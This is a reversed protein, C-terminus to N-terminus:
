NIQILLKIIFESGEGEKSEVELSGGHGKTVIDYALSLGLGTGQGTPKTTFFPQFIKSKIEETMGTGNDIVKIILQNEAQETKVVVLPKEVTKVAWFANNILNLLVRGIDQPIVEIKPLNPDFDTKFDSNFDKNKARLGHYALRLYEDALANINTLEKEGTSAKSHELMGKVISSARKGHLTIKELNQKLDNSIVKAEYIDGKDLEQNMEGVLETSVESFNNVFNLPNQIEHAIGATLEGLSALKESQILQNQTAKLETLTAEVRKKADELKTFDEYRAYAVAFADALTKALGIQDASLPEASGIYLMGQTFPVFQLSLSEPPEEGGQYTKKEKVYGQETMSHVWVAFQEKDWFDTYVERKRWHEVTKQTTAAGEFPLHLAALSNGDPTSLYAHVTESAEDMIFVGCRFFPVGLMTLERWVLPTIRKLDDTTRMSAIEGRVRDLSATRASEVARAEAKQLDLFRTYTQEFVKAFRQYVLFNEETFPVVNTFELLGYKINTYSFFVNESSRWGDKVEDPLNKHDTETLMYETYEDKKKNLLEITFQPIGQKWLKWVKGITKNTLPVTFFQPSHSMNLEAYWYRMIQAEEDCLVIACGWDTFGLNQIQAYMLAVVDALEDSKHMAISKARVRELALQIEAERAQAEAKQLDLFRTYTQEFVKAFRELIVFQEESIPETDVSELLGHKMIASSFVDQYGSNLILQKVEEPLHKFDTETLILKDFKKKEQGELTLSLRPLQDEWAEWTKQFFPHITRPINFCEAFTNQATSTTWFQLIDKREDPLILEIGSSAFGFPKIEEFLLAVVDSLEESRHMAMSRARVREMALEIQAERAQAEAKQLDLFRVYASGFVNSFRRLLAHTEANPKTMSTMVLSGGAFDAVSWYATIDKPKLGKTSNVVVKYAEPAHQKLMKCFDEFKKGENILVYDKKNSRYCAMMEEVIAIGKKPFRSQTQVIEQESNPSRSAAWSEFYDPSEDYLHIACTELEKQDLKGLQRRLELAVDALEDSRQMAMTRARVREMALQIQSESAQAEAKQLDLFRTYAQEFAKAFRKLINKEEATAKVFQVLGFRGYKHNVETSELNEFNYVHKKIVRNFYDTGTMEEMVHFFQQMADKGHLSLYSFEKGEKWDKITTNEWPATPPSYFFPEELIGEIPSMWVDQYGKELYLISSFLQFFEIELVKLQNYLVTVVKALEESKHMALSRSRVRELAAEIQAERAQAEAKKLDLLRRYALDFVSASRMLLDKAEYSPEQMSALLLTGGSFDACHYFEKKPINRAEPVLPQMVKYFEKIRNGSAVITYQKSPGQYQKIMEKMVACSEKGFLVVGTVMKADPDGAPHLFAFWSEIHKPHTEYLEVVMGNLETQGLLGMQERLVLAVEKLEESTHMALARARVRELAAEIQAERAQAEAKQLDLFRTYTQQFVKAFRGVITLTEESLRFSSVLEIQGYKMNVLTFHAAETERMINQFGKPLLRLETEKLLYKVYDDYDDGSASQRLYPEQTKWSEWHQSIHPNSKGLIKYSRPLTMSDFGAMWCEIMEDEEHFININCGFDVPEMQGIQQYLVGVVQALEDSQHMAMTAARVRELALQIEAERAQTEAKQLDLFRTYTQEFVKTFRALLHEHGDSLVNTSVIIIWGHSFNFTYFVVEEPFNLTVHKFSENFHKFIFEGHERNAKGKVVDKFFVEKQKWSKYRRIGVPDGNIPYMFFDRIINGEPSVIWGNVVGALQDIFEFGCTFPQVGFSRLEKFLLSSADAMEESKHMALSTARVRELAAEIQAERAQAEAKQLDLFRTYTQNFVKAFRTLIISSGESLEKDAVLELYGMSFYACHFFTPDPMDEIVKAELETRSAIPFVFDCHKKLASGEVKVTFFTEKRSWLDYLKQLIEDGLLPFVAMELYDADTRAGGYLIQQNKSEDFIVISADSFEQVDLNRLEKYLVTAVDVLEESKHMALSRSRVRELAAEIHAERAQAEAKQLDLFRTYTQEFVKCFRQLLSYLEDQPKTWSSYGMFGFQHRCQLLHYDSAGEPVYEIEFLLQEKFVKQAVEKELAFQRYPEKNKFADIDAQFTYHDTGNVTNNSKLSSQGNNNWIQLTNEEVNVFSIWSAVTETRLIKFQNTLENVVQELEDSKYMAMTRSRVRELAAEIQAERAQAEAKQLDLFRIYTQEFAKAFRVLISKQAKDLPETAIILLYGHSFNGFHFYTTEPMDLIGRREEETREADPYAVELHKKLQQADLKQSFFPEKRKWAEYRELLVQDGILPLTFNVLLNSDTQSGWLEQRKKEENILAFGCQVSQTIGLNKMADYMVTAVSILDESKHMAMSASRVRELAAEIELEKNKSNLVLNAKQKQRNNRVLIFSLFMLSALAGAISFLWIRQTKNEQEKLHSESELLEIDRQRKKLVGQIELESRNAANNLREEKEKAERYIKLYTFAKSKNGTQEYLQSLLRATLILRPLLNIETAWDFSTQAYKFANRLNGVSKYSEALDYAAWCAGHRDNYKLYATISEKFVSQAEESKGQAQLMRAKVWLLEADFFLSGKIGGVKLYDKYEPPFDQIRKLGFLSESILLYTNAVRENYNIEKRLKLEKNEYKLAKESNTLYWEYIIAVSIYVPKLLDKDGIETLLEEAQFLYELQLNVRNHIGYTRSLLYACHAKIYKDAEKTYINIAEIELPKAAAEMGKGLLDDIDRALIFLQHYSWNLEQYLGQALKKHKKSKEKDSKFYIFSLADQLHATIEVNKKEAYYSLAEELKAIMTEIESDRIGIPMVINGFIDFDTYQGLVRNGEVEYYIDLSNIFENVENMKNIDSTKIFANGANIRRRFIALSKLYLGEGRTFKLQKSITRAESLAKFGNLFDLNYFCLNAFNTLMHVRVTDKHSHRTIALQLKVLENQQVRVTDQACVMLSVTFFLFLILVQKM